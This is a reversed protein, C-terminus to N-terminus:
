KYIINRHAYAGPYNQNRYEFEGQYNSLFSNMDKKKNNSIKKM